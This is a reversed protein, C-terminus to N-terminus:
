NGGLIGKIVNDPISKPSRIWTEIIQKKIVDEGKKSEFFQKCMQSLASNNDAKGDYLYAYCLSGAEEMTIASIVIDKVANSVAQIDRESSHTPLGSINVTTSGGTVFGRANEIGKEIAKKDETLSEIQKNLEEKKKEDKIGETAKKLDAINANIKNTEDRMASISRSVEAIGQTNIAVAPARITGTLQEIGLLTVMYKQYRRMLLDYQIPTFAGNMYGECLRYLGDRLLQISQTRLGVFSSGEQFGGALKVTVESPLKAEAALQAAYASLADPSPEACVIPYQISGTGSTRRSVIVARQKIDVMAGKGDDVNFDRYVSNMNACGVLSILLITALFKTQWTMVNGGNFYKELRWTIM